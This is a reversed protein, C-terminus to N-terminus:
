FLECAVGGAATGIAAGRVPHKTDLTGVAAAGTSVAICVADKKLRHWFSGGTAAEKWADRQKQLADMESNADKLQAASLAAQKGCADLQAGTEDCSLKYNRLDPLDATPISVTEPVAPKTEGNPMKTAPQAPTVTAQQPLNPLLKSLDVVFQPATIPQQKQQELQAVRQNLDNVIQQKQADQAASDKKAQDIVAQQAAAVSEAKMRADHEQILAHTILVAGILVLALAVATWKEQLTM